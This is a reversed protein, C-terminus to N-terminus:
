LSAGMSGDTRSRGKKTWTGVARLYGVTRERELTLMVGAYALIGVFVEAAFRGPLPWIPTMLRVSSVAALMIATGIAAPRLAQLYQTPRLDIARFTWWYLPLTLLPYSIVWAAAIGTAGWRSGIYFALPLVALKILSNGMGKKEQGVANLIQPLISVSSSMATYCCLLMLPTASAEWKAGLSLRIFDRAVIALGLTAPMTLMSIGETLRCVYRRLAAPDNQCAAFFSPTVRMILTTIKEAPASALTWALTYLGLTARGLVRGAIAFDANSYAYWCVSAVLVAGSFSLARRLSKLRPWAFGPRKLFLLCLVSVGPGVLGSVVLAWYRAGLAALTIMTAAQVLQQSSEIGALVRFRMERQMLAQPVARLGSLLLGSSMVVLVLSLEPVRFFNAIPHAFIFSLGLGAGASLVALGNMEKVQDPTLSRLNIISSGIGFESLLVVLGLYITTMGLLGFDAPTLLRAVVLLSGWSFLQTLWKAVATWAISDILHVDMHNVASRAPSTVVFSEPSGDITTKRDISM